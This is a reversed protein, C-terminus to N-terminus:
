RCGNDRDYAAAALGNGLISEDLNQASVPPNKASRSAEVALQPNWQREQIARSVIVDGDEFRCRGFWTFHREQLVDNAGIMHDEGVEAGPM